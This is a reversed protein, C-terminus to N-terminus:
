KEVLTGIGDKTFIELILCHEIRGDLIHVNSVGANVGKVCCEVKPIMGGSIAGSAIMEEIEYIKIRSMVSNRDNPNERVGEVDTLFVLKEARLAGAVAVAADDANINYTNGEDDTGITSIVPVFDHEIL